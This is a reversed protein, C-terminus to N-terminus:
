RVSGATTVSGSAASTRAPEGCFRCTSAHGHYLKPCAPTAPPGLQLHLGAALAMGLMPAAFYVWVATWTRGPVASAVTRAPNMSMGSLPAEFTIFLFVLGGAFWGTFPALAPTNTLRLVLFMLVVALAFEAVFAAAVGAQGPVTVAYRVAPHALRSGLALRALGMGALGGAFQGLGYGLADMPTIRGLGLFTLTVAPNLHAGSYEGWPSYILAVATAGMALGILARRWGPSSVARRVPSDPHEAVVTCVAASIMFLGLLAAEAFYAFVSGALRDNM